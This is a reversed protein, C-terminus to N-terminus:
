EPESNNQRESMLRLYDDEGPASETARLLKKVQEQTSTEVYIAAMKMLTTTALDLEPFNPSIERMVENIRLKSLKSNRLQTALIMVPDPGFPVHNGFFRTLEQKKKSTKGNSDLRDVTDNLIEFFEQILIKDNCVARLEAASLDSNLISGLLARKFRERLETKM